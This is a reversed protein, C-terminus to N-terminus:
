LLIELRRINNEAMTRNSPM